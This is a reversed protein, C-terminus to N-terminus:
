KIIQESLFKLGDIYNESKNLVQALPFTISSSKTAIIMRGKFIGIWLENKGFVGSFSQRQRLKLHNISLIKPLYLTFNKAFHVWNLGDNVMIIDSMSSDTILLFSSNEDKYYQFDVNWAELSTEEINIISCIDDISISSSNEIIYWFIM